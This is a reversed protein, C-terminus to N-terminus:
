LYKKKEDNMQHINWFGSQDFTSAFYKTANSLLNPKM